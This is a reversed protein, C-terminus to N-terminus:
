MYENFDEVPKDFDAHMKLRGRLLGLTRKKKVGSRKIKERELILDIFDEVEQLNKAPVKKVKDM